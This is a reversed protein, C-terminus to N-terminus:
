LVPVEDPAPAPEPAAWRRSWWVLGLSLLGTGGVMVETLLMNGTFTLVLVVATDVLWHWGIAALFYHWQRTVVTRWVLVTLSLHLLIAWLREIGGLLPTYAPLDRYSQMAQNVQDAAIGTIGLSALDASALWAIALVNVLVLLGLLISEIGGHGLGFMLSQRWQRERRLLFRYGLYRAPEECIGAMLGLLVADVVVVWSVNVAQDLPIGLQTLVIQLISKEVVVLPLHVVQSGVFTLCGVLFLKWGLGWRWRLLVALVIPFGIMFLIEAAFALILAM